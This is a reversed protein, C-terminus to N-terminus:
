GLDAVVEVSISAYTARVAARDRTRRSEAEGPAEGVSGSLPRPARLPPPSTIEIKGTIHFIDTTFRYIQVTGPHPPALPSVATRHVM